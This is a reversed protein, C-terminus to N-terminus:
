VKRRDNQTSVFAIVADYAEPPSAFDPYAADWEITKAKAAKCEKVTPLPIGKRKLQDAIAFQQDKTFGHKATRQFVRGWFPVVSENWRSVPSGFGLVFKHRPQGNIRVARVLDYSLSTPASKDWIKYHCGFKDKSKSWRYKPKLKRKRVRIFGVTTTVLETRGRRKHYSRTSRFMTTVVGCSIM